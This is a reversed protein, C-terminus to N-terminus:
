ASIIKAFLHMQQPFILMIEKRANNVLSQYLEKARTPNHIIDIIEPQIGEEIEKIKTRASISKDWLTEFIYKQQEAIEKVNSYILQTLPQKEELTFTALYESETVAFNGKIKDLHRLEGHRIIKLIEKCYHINDKTIETIYYYKIGRKICDLFV